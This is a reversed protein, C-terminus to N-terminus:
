NKWEDKFLNIIDFPIKNWVIQEAYMGNCLITIGFNHEPLIMLTASFGPNNGVQWYYNGLDDSQTIWWGLGISVKKNQPAENRTTWMNQLSSKQLVGKFSNPNNYINLNHIMWNCLDISCSNLNGSPSHETNETNMGGVKVVKRKLIHPTSRREAPIKNYDISSYTMNAKVLINDRIYDEYQKGSIIQVLYGLIDYAANSYTVTPNFKTGPAFALTRNALSYVLKRLASSDNPSNELNVDWSLGSTHTLLHEITIDKYREDKMKFDPLYFTLNKSIDIKGQEALKMIATATFLKTISCTLFNTISDIPKPKDIEATGYGKTMYVKGDKVIGISVGIMQHTTMYGSVISDIKTITSAQRSQGISYFPLLILTLITLIFRPINNM